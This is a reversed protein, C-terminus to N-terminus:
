IDASAGSKPHPDDAQSSVSHVPCYPVRVAVHDQFVVTVRLFKTSLDAEKVESHGQFVVTMFDSAVFLMRGFETVKYSQFVCTAHRMDCASVSQVTSRSQFADKQSRSHGQFVVRTYYVRSPNSLM